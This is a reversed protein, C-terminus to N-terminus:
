IIHTTDQKWQRSPNFYFVDIVIDPTTSLGRVTHHLTCSQYTVWNQTFYLATGNYRPWNECLYEWLACMAWGNPCAIPQRKHISCRISIIGWNRYNYGRCLSTTQPYIPKVGNTRGDMGRGDWTRGADRTPKTAEVTRTTDMEYKYMKDLLTLLHTAHLTEQLIEFTSTKAIKLFKYSQSQVQSRIHIM